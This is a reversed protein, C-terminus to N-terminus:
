IMIEKSPAKSYPLPEFNNPNHQYLHQAMKHLIRYNQATDYRQLSNIENNFKICSNEISIIIAYNQLVLKM